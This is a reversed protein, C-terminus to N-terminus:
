FGLARVQVEFGLRCVGFGFKLSLVNYNSRRQDCSWIRLRSSSYSMQQQEFTTGVRGCNWVLLVSGPFQIKFCM